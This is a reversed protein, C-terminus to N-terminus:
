AERDYHDHWRQRFEARMAVRERATALDLGGWDQLEALVQDDTKDSALLEVRSEDLDADFDPTPTNEVAETQALPGIFVLNM